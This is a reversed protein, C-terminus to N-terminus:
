SVPDVEGGLIARARRLRRFYTARSTFLARAVGDHTAGPTLYRREVLDLLAPEDSLLATVAERVWQQVRDSAAELPLDSAAVPLRALDAPSHYAELAAVLDPGADDVGAPVRGQEIAIAQHLVGVLGDPGVDSCWVRVDVGGARMHLEPVPAYGYAELQERELTAGTIDIMFDRRPNLIGCRQLAVANRLRLVDPDVRVPDLVVQFPTVVTREDLGHRRAYTAVRAVLGTGRDDVDSLSVAAVVASVRGDTGRIVHTAPRALWPEVLPWTGPWHRDLAARIGAADGRRVRDAYSDAGVVPALGARLAPDEVLGALRAVAVGEGGLARDRLHDAIRLTLARAGAPDTARLRSRVAAALRPQLALSGARSEVFSCASLQLLASDLCVEPLVTGLLQRDVEGALAALNLVEADVQVLAAGALHEVLDDEVDSPLAQDLLDLDLDCAQWAGAGLVLALPLGGAWGAILDRAAPDDVGQRTLVEEAAARGLSTLRHRSALPGLPDPLWREPLKRASLLVRASAPFDAILRGLAHLGAALEDADDVVVLTPGSPLDHLLQELDAADARRGDIVIVTAGAAAARRAGDRLAASKGTGGPGTVALVVLSGDRDGLQDLRRSLAVPCLYRRADLERALGAVTTGAEHQRPHRHITGM